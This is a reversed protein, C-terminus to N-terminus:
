RDEEAVWPGPAGWFRPFSSGALLAEAVPQLFTRLPPGLDVLQQPVDQYQGKRLFAAWKPQANVLFEEGLAEPHQEIPTMRHEFTNAIAIALPDGDFDFNRSLMWIDFFDKVRSNLTRLYVMAQFKEAIVTERPYVRVKPAAQELLTPFEAWHVPPHVVDGFGVDIQMPVRARELFGMFKVRVGSYDADEKIVQGAVTAPDFRLGDDDVAVTCVERVISELNEVSSEVHGLLDIDRTPRYSPANWVRM